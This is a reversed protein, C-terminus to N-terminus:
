FGTVKLEELMKRVNTIPTGQADSIQQKAPPNELYHLIRKSIREQYTPVLENQYFVGIPIKDGWEQAKTL